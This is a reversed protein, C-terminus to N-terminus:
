LSTKYREWRALFYDWDEDSVESALEPRKAKEARTSPRDEGGAGAPQPHNAHCHIRLMELFTKPDNSEFAWDCGPYECPRPAM